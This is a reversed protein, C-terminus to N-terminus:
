TRFMRGTSRRNFRLCDLNDSIIMLVFVVPILKLQTYVVFAFYPAPIDPM